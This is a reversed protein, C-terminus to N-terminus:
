WKVSEYDFDDDSLELKSIDCGMSVAANTLLQIHTKYEDSYYVAKKLLKPLKRFSNKGGGLKFFDLNISRMFQYIYENGSYIAGEIYPLISGAGIKDYKIMSTELWYEIQLFISIDYKTAESYRMNYRLAALSFLLLVWSIKCGYYQIQEFSYQSHERKLRSGEKAKRIEYLFASILQDRNDFGKQNALDENNWFKAIVSYFSNLDDYTGWLEVGLGRKTPHLYIM